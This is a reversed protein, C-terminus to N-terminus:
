QRHILNYRSVGTENSMGGQQHSILRPLDAARLPRGRIILKQQKTHTAIITQGSLATSRVSLQAKAAKGDKALPFERVRM